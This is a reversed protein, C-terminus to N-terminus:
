SAARRIPQAARCGGPLSACVLTGHEDATINVTGGALGVREHIGALGFGESTATADFGCGDDQVEIQLHGDAQAVAVRVSSAGAHKIVNTLAEQVIRYTASELDGDLRPEGSAPGPLALQSDIELGSHERHRDLMAEIAIKLGLEDLAAPRLETIITRLSEIEDAIRQSVERLTPEHQEPEGRRLVASILVQLGALGQLTEDHLERAWRRREGEASALSSRLRDAQVSQALAVATAASV